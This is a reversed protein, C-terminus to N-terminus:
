KQRIGRWKFILGTQSCILLLFMMMYFQVMRRVSEKMSELDTYIKNVGPQDAGKRFYHFRGISSDIHKWGMESYFSFYEDEAEHFDIQYIYQEDLNQHFYYVGFRYKQFHLGRESMENLWKEEKEVNSALFFRIKESGNM